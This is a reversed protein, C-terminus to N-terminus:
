PVSAALASQTDAVGHPGPGGAVARQVVARTQGGVLLDTVASSYALAAGALARVGLELTGRTFGAGGTWSDASLVLLHPQM